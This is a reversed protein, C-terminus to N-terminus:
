FGGGVHGGSVQGGGVGSVQREEGALADNGPYCAADGGEVAEDGVAAAFREVVEEALAGVGECFAGDGGGGGGEAGGAM